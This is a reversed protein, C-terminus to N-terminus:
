INEEPLVAAITGGLHDSLIIDDSFIDDIFIPNSSSSNTGSAASAESGFGANV